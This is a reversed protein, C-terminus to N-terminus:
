ALGRPRPHEREELRKIFNCNACLVQYEKSGDRVADYMDAYVGNARERRHQTGNGRVHDVQLARIDSYGCRVCKAGLLDIIELRLNKTTRGAQALHDSTYKRKAPPHALLFRVRSGSINYAAGIEISSAGAESMKQMGRYRKILEQRNMSGM